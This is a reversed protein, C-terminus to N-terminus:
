ICNCVYLASIIQRIGGKVPLLLCQNVVLIMLCVTCKTARVASEHGETTTASLIVLTHTHQQSVVSVSCSEGHLKKISKIHVQCM